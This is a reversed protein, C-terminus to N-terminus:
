YTLAESHESFTSLWKTKKALPQWKFSLAPASTFPNYSVDVQINKKKIRHLEPVVIGCVGGIIFGTMVDTPFHALARVRFYGEILPPISALGYLLFRKRGIEPHYDTYVKVMFFTAATSSAVHGSYMSNRQNGGNRDSVPFSNTYYVIPRYKNQFAPGFFSFNYISFTIAHMQYYMLLINWWDKSISKDFGLAGASVIIAPLTIDSIKYFKDRQTPDLDLAWRDFGNFANPNLAQLEADTLDKKSHIIKPIAYIDAATALVSFGFTGWFDVHYKKSGRPVAVSDAVPVTDPISHLNFNSFSYSKGSLKTDLSVGPQTGIASFQASVFFGSLIIATLLLVKRM